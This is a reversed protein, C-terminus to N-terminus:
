DEESSSSDSDEESDDDEESSSDEDSESNDMRYYDFDSDSRSYYTSYFDNDENLEYVHPDLLLYVSKDNMYGLHLHGSSSESADYFNDYVSNGKPNAYYYPASSALSLLGLFILLKM